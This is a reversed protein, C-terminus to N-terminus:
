APRADPPPHGSRRASGTLERHLIDPAFDVVSATGGEGRVGILDIRIRISRAVAARLAHEDSGIVGDELDRLIRWLVSRKRADVRELPDWRGATRKVEVIVIDRGDPTSAILDAEDRPDRPSRWNRALIRFGLARLFREATREGPDRGSGLLKRAPWRMLWAMAAAAGDRRAHMWLQGCARWLDAINKRM